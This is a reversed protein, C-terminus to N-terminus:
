IYFYKDPHKRIRRHVTPISVRYHEAAAIRSEFVGDPTQIRKCHKARVEPRANAAKAAASRKARVGPRNMAEKSAASKAAASNNGERLNEGTTIIRVNSAEYPGIDNYRAMVYQGRKRGRESLHGSAIWVDLWEDFTFNFDINRQRAVGQHGKYTKYLKKIYDPHLASKYTTPSM